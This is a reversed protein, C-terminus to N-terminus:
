PKLLCVVLILIQLVNLVVSIWHYLNFNEPENADRSRNILPTLVWMLFFFCVACIASMWQMRPTAAFGSALATLGGLVLYYVPFFARVYVGAWQAPLTKFILPAVIMTFFVMIGLTAAVLLSSITAM